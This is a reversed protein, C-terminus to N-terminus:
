PKSIKGFLMRGIKGPARQMKGKIDFGWIRLRRTALYLAYVISPEIFGKWFNWRLRLRITFMWIPLLRTVLNPPQPVVRFELPQKGTDLAEFMRARRNFYIALPYEYFLSSWRVRGEEIFAGDSSTGTLYTDLNGRPRPADKECLETFPYNRYRQPGSFSVNIERSLEDMWRITAIKGERTEGPFDVIFSVNVSLRDDSVNRLVEMAKRVEEDRIQKHLVENRLMESGSEMSMGLGVLGSDMMERLSEPTIRKRFYNFRANVAWLLGKEKMYATWDRVLTPNLFMDEDRAIVFRIGLDRFPVETERRIKEISKSRHLAGYRAFITNICFSCKWSCGRSTHVFLTPVSTQFPYGAVHIVREINPYDAYDVDALDDLNMVFDPEALFSKGEMSFSVGKADRLSEASRKGELYECIRVLPFEGDCPM